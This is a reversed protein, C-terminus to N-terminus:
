KVCVLKLVTAAVRQPPIQSWRNQQDLLHESTSTPVGKGMHVDHFGLYLNRYLEMKCDYEKRTTVSLAASSKDRRKSDELEWVKRLDGDKRISEYDIYSIADNAEGVKTWEAFASAATTALVCAFIIKKMADHKHEHRYAQHNGSHCQGLESTQAGKNM